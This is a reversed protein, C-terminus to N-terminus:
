NGLMSDITWGLTVTLIFAALGAIGATTAASKANGGTRRSTWNYVWVSSSLAVILGIMTTSFM